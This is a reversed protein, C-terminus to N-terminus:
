KTPVEREVSQRAVTVLKSSPGMVIRKTLPILGIMWLAHALGGVSVLMAATIATADTPTMDYGAYKKLVAVLVGALVAGLAAGVGAAPSITM